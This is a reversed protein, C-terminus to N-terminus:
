KYKSEGKHTALISCPDYFYVTISCVIIDLSRITLLVLFIDIWLIAKTKGAMLLPEHIVSKWDIDTPVEEL